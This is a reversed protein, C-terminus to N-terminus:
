LLPADTRNRRFLRGAVACLIVFGIILTVAGATRLGNRVEDGMDSRGDRRRDHQTARGPLPSLTQLVVPRLTRTFAAASDLQGGDISDSKSTLSKKTQGTPDAQFPSTCVAAFSVDGVSCLVCTSGTPSLHLPNGCGPLPVFPVRSLGHAWNCLHTHIPEGHSTSRWCCFWCSANPM